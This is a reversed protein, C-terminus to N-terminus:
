LTDGSDDDQGKGDGSLGGDKWPSTGPWIGWIGSVPSGWVGNDLLVNGWPDMSSGRVPGSVWSGNDGGWMDWSDYGVSGWDM